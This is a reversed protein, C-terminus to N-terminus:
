QKGNTEGEFRVVVEIPEGGAGTVETRETWEERERRKLIELAAKWDGDAKTAEARVRNSMEALLDGEARTIAQLFEPYKHLWECFTGQNIGCAWGAAKRTAGHRIHEAISQCIQENYKTPRGPGPM